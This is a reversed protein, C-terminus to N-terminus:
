PLIRGLLGSGGDDISEERISDLVRVVHAFHPGEALYRTGGEDERNVMVGARELRPVHNQHLSVHVRQREAKTWEKGYEAAAVREVLTSFEAESATMDEMTGILHRRRPDSLVDLIQGETITSDMREQEEGEVAGSMDAGINASM